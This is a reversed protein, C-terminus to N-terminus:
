SAFISGSFAFAPLMRFVEGRLAFIAHYILLPCITFEIPLKDMEEEM